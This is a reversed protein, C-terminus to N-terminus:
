ITRLRPGHLLDRAMRRPADNGHVVLWYGHAADGGLDGMGREQSAGNRGTPLLDSWILLLMSVSAGRSDMHAAEMPRVLSASFYVPKSKSADMFPHQEHRDGHTQPSCPGGIRNSLRM